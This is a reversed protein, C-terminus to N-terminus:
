RQQQQQAPGTATQYAPQPAGGAAPPISSYAAGSGSVWPIAPLAGHRQYYGYAAGVAGLVLLLLSAFIWAGTHGGGGSSSGHYATHKM